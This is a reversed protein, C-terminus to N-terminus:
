TDGSASACAVAAEGEAADAGHQAAMERAAAESVLLHM